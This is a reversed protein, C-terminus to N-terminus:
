RGKTHSLINKAAENVANMLEDAKFSKSHEKGKDMIVTSSKNTTIKSWESDTPALNVLQDHEFSFVKGDMFFNVKGNELYVDKTPVEFMVVDKDIKASAIGKSKDDVAKNISSEAEASSFVLLQDKTLKKESNLDVKDHFKIYANLEKEHEFTKCMTDESIGINDLMKPLQQENWKEKTMGKDSFSYMEGSSNKFSYTSYVNNNDKEDIVFNRTVVIGNEPLYFKLGQEPVIAPDRVPQFCESAKFSPTIPVGKNLEAVAKEPDKEFETGKASQLYDQFSTGIGNKINSIDQKSNDIVEQLEGKRQNLNESKVELAAKEDGSATLLKENVEKLEDDIKKVDSEKEDVKKGMNAEVISAFYAFEQAPIAVPKKNDASNLDPLYAFHLGAKKADELVKDFIDNDIQIVQPNGGESMKAIDKYSHKGVHTEKIDVGTNIGWETIAKLAKLFFAAAKVGGKIVYKVTEFELSCVQSIEDAM